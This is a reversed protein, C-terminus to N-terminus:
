SDRRLWSSLIVASAFALLLNTYHVASLV